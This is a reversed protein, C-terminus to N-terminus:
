NKTRTYFIEGNPNWVVEFGRNFFSLAENAEAAILGPDCQPIKWFIRNLVNVVSQREHYDSMTVTKAKKKM